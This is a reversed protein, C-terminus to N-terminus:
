EDAATGARSRSSDLYVPRDQRCFAYVHLNRLCCARVTNLTDPNIAVDTSFFLDVVGEAVYEAVQKDHYQEGSDVDGESEVEYRAYCGRDGADAIDARAESIYAGHGVICIEGCYELACSHYLHQYATQFYEGYQIQDLRDSAHLAEGPWSLVDMM